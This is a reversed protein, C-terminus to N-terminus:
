ATPSPLPVGAPLDALIDEPELRMLDDRTWSRRVDTALRRTGCGPTSWSTACAAAVVRRQGAGAVMGYETHM